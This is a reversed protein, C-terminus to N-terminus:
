EDFCNDSTLMIVPLDQFRGDSKMRKLLSLGDLRPMQKDLLILDFRSPDSDIREWAVLGDAATELVYGCSELAEQTIARVMEDDDVILLNVPM